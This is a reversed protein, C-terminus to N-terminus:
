HHEDPPLNYRVTIETSLGRAWDMIIKSDGASLTAEKHTWLYSDIPMENKEITEVIEKLKHNQKKTPYSGFESFNLEKKGENIHYQLWWGVPQINSYWPYITNNTHCDNCSRKLISKVNEPVSYHGSIENSSIESNINRSPRIFQILVLLSLIILLTKKM